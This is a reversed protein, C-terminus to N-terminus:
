TEAAENNVEDHLDRFLKITADTPAHGRGASSAYFDAFLDAPSRSGTIPDVAGAAAAALPRVREIHVANPLQERVLAALNAVPVDVDVFVRLWADGAEAAAQALDNLGIGHLPSGVDRLQRGATIPLQTVAAPQGAHVEVLNVSKAQDVEGFDLQLLSGSYSAKPSARIQQQKHVHGLATYQPSSPLGDPRVGYIGRDLHLPREGGGPGVVASDVFVHAVLINVADPSYAAVLKKMADAAWYSYELGQSGPEGPLTNFGVVDRESIWPLAAVLAHEHGKKEEVKFTGGEGPKKPEGVLHLGLGSLLPALAEFRRPHDHNGAVLVAPIGAGFLERFFEYVIQESEASPATTDFVDGAVLVCDVEQERAHRIVQALASEHEVERLRGRVTRGVHWDSTHLFKM